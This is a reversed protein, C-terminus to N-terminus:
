MHQRIGGEESGRYLQLILCSEISNLSLSEMFPLFTFPDSFPYSYPYVLLVPFPISFFPLSYPNFLLVSLPIQSFFISQLYSLLFTYPISLLFHFLNSLLVPFASLSFLFQFTPYYFLNSLFVPM